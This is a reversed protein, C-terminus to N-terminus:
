DGTSGFISPDSAEGLRIRVADRDESETNPKRRL